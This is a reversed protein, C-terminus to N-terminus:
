IIGGSRHFLVFLKLNEWLTLDKKFPMGFFVDVMENCYTRIWNHLAWDLITSSILIFTQQLRHFQKLSFWILFLWINQGNTIYLMLGKLYIIHQMEVTHIHAPSKRIVRKLQFIGWVSILSYVFTASECFVVLVSYKSYNLTVKKRNGCAGQQKFAM